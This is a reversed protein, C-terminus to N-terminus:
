SGDWLDISDLDIEEGADEYCECGPHGPPTTDGSDFSDDVPIPGQDANGQCIPCTSPGAPIWVKTKVGNEKLFADQATSMAQNTETNAILFARTESIGKFEDAIDEALQNIDVMSLRSDRIFTIMRKRTTEDIASKHLLYNSQDKLAAIYHPNTLEFDVTPGAAKQVVGIRAYQALASWVFANNLYVYVKEQSVFENALPMENSLWAGLKGEFESDTLEEDQLFDIQDLNDGLWKAQKQIAKEFKGTFQKFSETDRFSELPENQKQAKNIFQSVAANLRQLKGSRM